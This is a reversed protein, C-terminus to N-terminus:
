GIGRTACWVTCLAHGTHLPSDSPVGPCDACLAGCIRARPICCRVTQHAGFQETHVPCHSLQRIWRILTASRLLRNVHYPVPCHVTCTLCAGVTRHTRRCFTTAETWRSYNPSFAIFVGWGAMKLHPLGLFMSLCITSIELHDYVWTSLLIV